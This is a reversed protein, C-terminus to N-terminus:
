APSACGAVIGNQLFFSNHIYIRGKLEGCKRLGRADTVEQKSGGHALVYCYIM